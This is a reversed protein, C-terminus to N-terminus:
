HIPDSNEKSEEDNMSALEKTIQFLEYASVSKRSCLREQIQAHKEADRRARRLGEEREEEELDWLDVSSGSSRVSLPQQDLGCKELGTLSCRREYQPSNYQKHSRLRTTEEPSSGSTPDTETSGFITRKAHNKNLQEEALMLDFEVGSLKDSLSTSERVKLKYKNNLEEYNKELGVFRELLDM